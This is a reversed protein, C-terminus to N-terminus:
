AMFLAMHNANIILDQPLSGFLNYRRALPKFKERGNPAICNYLLIALEYDSLQARIIRIYKKKTNPDIESDDIYRILNYLFRFYHSLNQRQSQWLTAFSQDIAAQPDKITTSNNLYADKFSVYYNFFCDRGKALFERPITLQYIDLDYVINDYITILQFFTSEFERLCQKEKELELTRHQYWLACLVGGFALASFLSSLMGFSDGFQGYTETAKSNPEITVFPLYHFTSL